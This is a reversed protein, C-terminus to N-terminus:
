RIQLGYRRAAAYFLLAVVTTMATWTMGMAAVENVQGNTWAEFLVVSVITSGPGALLIPMAVAKVSVLFIFLWCTILAPAILPVVIRLFTTGERAGSMASAEELERHVQIIGAQAYRMGYPLFRVSSAIVISTLTGYLGFPLNLFVHLFAVGMVLAPFVLPMTALQDLIWAGPRRRAVLWACLATFTVVATATAMGLIVTNGISGAFSASDAVKVYNRLTLLGVAERTIGEYFPVLSAFIAIGVPLGIILIFLLVLITTTLYRWKGLDIVRPKFGKGTITQYREAHRLLRSYFFLLVAVIALLAVSFSGAQGYNPPIRTHLSDYIDTTLVFVNGPRGVLAPVEFAEFARILVLILLALIGPTALRLTIRRFTQMLGAGSMMSAEELSADNSRMVSSLLLFALPAFDIGEVVIMGWLSYVNIVPQDTAFLWMLMQNVPGAKGLILLFSITYLVSPIGLSIISILFVYKRLPTNTREVIWAQVVGLTIAIIATGLAFITANVLNNFFRPNTVLEAYYRFTFQDFSGDFRTTYFSAQLLYLTPPLLFVLLIAGLIAVSPAIAFRSPPRPRFGAFTDLADNMTM